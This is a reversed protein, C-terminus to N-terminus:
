AADGTPFSGPIASRRILGAPLYGPPPFPEASRAPARYAAVAIDSDSARVPPLSVREANPVRAPIAAPVPQARLALPLPNAAAGRAAAGPTPFCDAPRKRAVPKLPRPHAFHNQVQASPLAPSTSRLAPR